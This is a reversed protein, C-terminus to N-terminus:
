VQAALATIEKAIHQCTKAEKLKRRVSGTLSRQFSQRAEQPLPTLGPSNLARLPHSYVAIRERRERGSRM